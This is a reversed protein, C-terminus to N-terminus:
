PAHGAILYKLTNDTFILGGGVMPSSLNANLPNYWGANIWIHNLLTYTFFARVYPNPEVPNFTGINFMTITFMLDPLLYVDTGIGFSNEVLGARIDFNDFREGFELSFRLGSKYSTISQPGTTYTGNTNQTVSNSEGFTNANTDVIQFRYFKDSRSYLDLDFVGQSDGGRTATLDRMWVNLRMRDAKTAEKSLTKLTKNLNNYLTPDNVLKGITGQGDDIKALISDLHGAANDAKKYLAQDNVLKGVTGVGTDIKKSISNIRNLIKPSKDKLNKTFEDLNKTLRALHKLTDQLEQKGEPSAVALRLSATIAKIDASIKQLRAILRNVSVTEGPSAITSKPPLYGASQSPPLGAPATVPQVAAQSQGAPPNPSAPAAQPAASAASGTSPPVSDAWATKVSLLSSLRDGFEQRYGTDGKLFPRGSPGPTLEIYVKGLFGNSYILPHVDSPIQIGPFITMEVHANGKIGLTINTVEGVKVGAVRVAAGKELGDVTKFDSYLLYSGKENLHWHGFRISLLIGAVIALVVFVGLKAESTLNM